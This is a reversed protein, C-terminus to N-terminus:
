GRFKTKHVGAGPLYDLKPKEKDDDVKFWSEKLGEWWEESSKKKLGCKLQTDEKIIGKDQMYKQLWIFTDDKSSITISSWLKAKMKYYIFMVFSYVIYFILAAISLTILLPILQRFYFMAKSNLHWINIKHAKM